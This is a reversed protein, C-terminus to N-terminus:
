AHGFYLGTLPFSHCGSLGVVMLMFTWINWSSHQVTGMSLEPIRGEMRLSCKLTEM